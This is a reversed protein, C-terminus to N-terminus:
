DFKFHILQTIVPIQSEPQPSVFPVARGRRMVPIAYLEVCRLVRNANYARPVAVSNIAQRSYIMLSRRIPLPKSQSHLAGSDFDFYPWVATRLRHVPQMLAVVAIYDFRSM